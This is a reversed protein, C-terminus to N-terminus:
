RYDFIIGFNGFINNSIGSWNQMNKTRAAGIHSGYIYFYKSISDYVISPDHVSVYSKTKTTYMSNIETTTLKVMDPTEQASVGMFACALSICTFLGKRKM